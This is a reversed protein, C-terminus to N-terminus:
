VNVAIVIVQALLTSAAFSKLHCSLLKRCPCFVTIYTAYAMLGSVVIQEKRM